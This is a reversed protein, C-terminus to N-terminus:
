TRPVPQGGVAWATKLLPWVPCDAAFRAGLEGRPSPGSRESVIIMHPLRAEPRTAKLSLGCGMAVHIVITRAPRAAKPYDHDIIRPRFEEPLDTCHALVRPLELELLM